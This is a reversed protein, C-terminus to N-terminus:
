RFEFTAGGYGMCIRAAIIFVNLKVKKRTHTVYYNAKSFFVDNSPGDKKLSKGTKQVSTIACYKSSIRLFARSLLQSCYNLDKM